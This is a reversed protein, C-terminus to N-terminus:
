VNELITRYRLIDSDAHKWLDTCSSEDDSSSSLPLISDPHVSFDDLVPRIISSAEIDPQSIVSLSSESEREFLIGCNVFQRQFCPTNSFVDNFHEIARHAQEPKKENLIGIIEALEADSDGSSFSPRREPLDIVVRETQVAADSM